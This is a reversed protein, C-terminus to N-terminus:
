PRRGHADRQFDGSVGAMVYVNEMAFGPAGSVSNEILRAGEPVRAMRRRADNVVEGKKAYWEELISITDPREGVAVGFAAGIADATIDDHTPGIGGSTFVTDHRGRLDNVARVIAEQDDAVM